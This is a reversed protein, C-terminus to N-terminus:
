DGHELLFADFVQALRSRLMAKPRVLSLARTFQFDSVDLRVLQGRAIDAEVVARSLCAIGGGAIAALRVAENSTAVFPSHMQGIAEHMMVRLRSTISSNAERACWTMGALDRVRLRKRRALAHSPAVVLWLEDTRWHTLELGEVDPFYEILATELQFQALNQFLEGATAAQIRLSVDPYKELFRICIGPLVTEAISASAGLQLVGELPTDTGAEIEQAETLLSRVRARLKKGEDTIILKRGSGHLFLPRKLIIQLDKLASSVASQSMSLKQAAKTISGTTSVADFVVLQKITIKM